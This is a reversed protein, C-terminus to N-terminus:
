SHERAETTFTARPSETAHPAHSTEIRLTAEAMPTADAMLPAAGTEPAASKADRRAGKDRYMDEDARAIAISLLDGPNWEVVGWSWPHISVDNLRQLLLRASEVDTEPLLFIFEDGGIRAITDTERVLSKWQRAVERLLRDGEGHGRTDNVDKFEDLDVVAVCVPRGTREARAREADGRVVLGRRNYVGTLQDIHTEAKFRKQVFVGAELCLWTFLVINVANRGGDFEDLSELPDWVVALGLMLLVLVQCLRALWPTLFAGLYLGLVPMQVLVGVANVPMRLVTIFLIVTAANAGVLLLAPWPGLRDGSVLCAAAAALSLLALSLTVIFGLRPERSLLIDAVLLVCFSSLLVATAASYMTIRARVRSLIGM